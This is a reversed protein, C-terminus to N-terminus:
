RGEQQKLWNIVADAVPKEYGRYDHKAGPIKVQMFQQSVLPKRFSAAKADMENDGYVDIVPVGVKRLNLNTNLPEKGGATLGVGIFGVIHADPNNALFGTTMRGGMSHGMLYIREIKKENKLYDIAAQIRRYAEPFSAALQPSDVADAGPDPMRLSLTHAGLEQHIAKRLPGVVNGDPSNGRGHALIVAVKSANGDLYEGEPMQAVAQTAVVCGLIWLFTHLAHM